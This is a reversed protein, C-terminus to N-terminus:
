PNSEVLTLNYVQLDNGTGRQFIINNGSKILKYDGHLLCDFTVSTFMGCQCDPIVPFVTPAFSITNNKIKYIGKTICPFKQILAGGSAVEAYNNGHFSIAAFLPQGQYVLSGQYYGDTSVTDLKECSSFISLSTITMLLFLTKVIKDYYYYKLSCNIM